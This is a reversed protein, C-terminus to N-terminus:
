ASHLLYNRIQGDFTSERGSRRGKSLGPDLTCQWPITTIQASLNVCSIPVVIITTFPTHTKVLTATFLFRLTRGRLRKILGKGCSWGISGAASELPTRQCKVKESSPLVTQSHIPKRSRDVFFVSHIPDIARHRTISFLNTHNQSIIEIVILCSIIDPPVKCYKTQTRFALM